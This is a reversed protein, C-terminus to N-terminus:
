WVLVDLGMVVVTQGARVGGQMAAHFGAALPEVLAGEM